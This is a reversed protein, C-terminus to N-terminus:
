FAGSGNARSGQAQKTSIPRQWYHLFLKRIFPVFWPFYPLELNLLIPASKQFNSCRELTKVPDYLNEAGLLTWVVVLGM